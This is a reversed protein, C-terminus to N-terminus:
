PTYKSVMSPNSSAVVIFGWEDLAIEFGAAPFTCVLSGDAGSRKEVALGDASMLVVDGNPDVQVVQGPTQWRESGDPERVEVLDVERHVAITELPGGVDITPPVDSGPPLSWVVQEDQTIRVLAGDQDVIVFEGDVFVDLARIWELGIGWDGSVLWLDDGEEPDLEALVALNATTRRGGYYGRGNAGVTIDGARTYLPYFVPSSGLPVGNSNFTWFRSVYTGYDDYHVFLGFIRDGVGAIGIGDNYCGGAVSDSWNLSGDTGDLGAFYAEAHQQCSDYEDVPGPYPPLTGTLLVDGGSRTEVRSVVEVPTSWLQTGCPPLNTIVVIPGAQDLKNATDFATVTLPTGSQTVSNVLWQAQYPATGDVGVLLDGARFEVRDVAIDDIVVAELAVWEVGGVAFDGVNGNATFSLIEPPQLDPSLTCDSECGDGDVNNGDDCSEGPQVLWDGCAPLMCLNTCGDNNVLNGDDCAEGDEVIGNGCVPEGDGDGDGTGGDGDGDGDGDGTGGDGTESETGPGGDDSGGQPCGACGLLGILFMRYQVIM